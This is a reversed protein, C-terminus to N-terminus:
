NIYTLAEQALSSLFDHHKGALYIAGVTLPKRYRKYLLSAIAGCAEGLVRGLIAMGAFVM